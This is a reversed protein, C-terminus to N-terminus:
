FGLFVGSGFFRELLYASVAPSDVVPVSGVTVKVGRGAGGGGTGAVGGEGASAASRARMSASEIVGKSVSSFACGATSRVATCRFCRLDRSMVQGRPVRLPGSRGTVFTESACNTRASRTSSATSRALSVMPQCKVAGGGIRTVLLRRLGQRRGRGAAVAVRATASYSGRGGFELPRLAGREVVRM